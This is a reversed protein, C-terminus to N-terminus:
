WLLSRFCINLCLECLRRYSLTICMFVSLLVSLEGNNTNQTFQEDDDFHADGGIPHSTPFYAHALVGGDGDFPDNDGHDGRKFDIIIDANSATTETFNLASEDSWIQPYSHTLVTAIVFIM